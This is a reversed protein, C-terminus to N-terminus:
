KNRVFFYTRPANDANRTVTERASMRLTVPCIDRSEDIRTRCRNPPRCCAVFTPAVDDRHIQTTHPWIQPSDCVTFLLYNVTHAGNPRRLVFRLDATSGLLTSAYRQSFGDAENFLAMRQTLLKLRKLAPGVISLRAAHKAVLQACM